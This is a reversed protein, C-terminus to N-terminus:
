RPSCGSVRRLWSFRGIPEYLPALVTGGPSDSWHGWQMGDVWIEVAGEQDYLWSWTGSPTIAVSGPSPVPPIAPTPDDYRASFGVLAEGFEGLDGLEVGGWVVSFYAWPNAHVECGDVCMDPDSEYRGPIGDPIPQGREIRFAVTVPAGVRLPLFERRDTKRLDRQKRATSIDLYGLQLGGARVILRYIADPELSANRTRWRFVYRERRAEVRLSAAGDAGLSVPGVATSRCAGEQWLCVTVEPSVSPDFTGQFATPDHHRLLFFFQRQSAGIAGSSIEKSVRDPTAPPATPFDKCAAATLILM